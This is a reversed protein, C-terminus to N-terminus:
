KAMQCPVALTYMRATVVMEAADSTFLQEVVLAQGASTRAFAQFAREEKPTISSKRPAPGRGRAALFYALGLATVKRGVPGEFFDAGAALDKPSMLESALNEFVPTLASRPIRHICEVAAPSGEKRKVGDEFDFRMSLLVLSDPMMAAVLRKADPAAEQARAARATPVALVLAIALRVLRNSM